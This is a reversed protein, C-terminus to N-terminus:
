TDLGALCIGPGGSSSSAVFDQNDASLQGVFVDRDPTAVVYMDDRLHELILREHIVVPGPVDYELLVLRGTLM